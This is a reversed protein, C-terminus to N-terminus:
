RGWDSFAYPAQGIDRAPVGAYLRGPKGSRTMVAGAAVYAGRGLEIGGVLFAGMGVFAQGHVVPAAERVALKADVFRHILSGMVVAGEGVIADNCVFGGIWSRAGIMVRDYIRAGYMVQVGADCTTNSGLYCHHDIWVDENIRTNRGIVVHSEIITNDGITVVAAGRRSERSTACGASGDAGIVCYPGISVKDGLQIDCYCLATGHLGSKM